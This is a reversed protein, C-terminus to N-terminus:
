KIAKKVEDCVYKIQEETIGNGMPLAINREGLEEANPFVKGKFFQKHYEQKHVPVWCIRTGVGKENLKETIKDRKKSNVFIPFFMWPHRTVFAPVQQLEIGGINQLEDFYIKALKERHKLFEEVKELQSLGLASQLDTTRFNYGYHEFHTRTKNPGVGHNKIKRCLDDIIDDNTTICGGEITTFTKAIHFSFITTHNFSGVKRNKYEGGFAEAADEILIIGNEKSFEEFEKQEISMGAVDIPIMAKAKKYECSERITEPTINLVKKDSDALMVKDQLGLPVNVAAIFGYAPAIVEKGGGAINHAYLATMMATTASSFVITHKCGIYDCIKQEFEKTLKGESMWGSELVKVISEKDKESISPVSWPVSMKQQM